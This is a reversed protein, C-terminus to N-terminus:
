DSAPRMSAQIRETEKGVWSWAEYLWRKRERADRPITDANFRRFSVTVTNGIPPKRWIEKIGRLAELGVHTAVVVDTGADLLALVGGARPPLIGDYPALLAHLDPDSAALKEMRRKRREPSFRTGEPFLMVGEHPGLDRGLASIAEREAAPDDSDRDVFYNPMRNGGIDLAPDSLLEKKLVWRLRIGAGASVFVHPLLNDMISAHRFLVVIPGPVIEDAGQVSFRLSFARRLAWMIAQVWRTQLWYSWECRRRAAGPTFPLSAAWQLGAFLIVAVQATFYVWAIFVLRIAMWPKKTTLWRVFDVIAAIPIVAPLSISLLLWLLVTRPVTILRRRIM